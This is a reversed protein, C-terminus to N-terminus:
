QKTLLNLDQIYPDHKGDGSLRVKMSGVVTWTGSHTDGWTPAGVVGGGMGPPRAGFTKTYTGDARLVLRTKTYSVATATENSWTGVLSNDSSPASGDMTAIVANGTYPTFGNGSTNDANQQPPHDAYYQRVVELAIRNGVINNSVKVGETTLYFRLADGSLTLSAINSFNVEANGVVLWRPDPNALVPGLVLKNTPRQQEKQSGEQDLAFFNMQTDGFQITVGNTLTVSNQSFAPWSLALLALPILRKM